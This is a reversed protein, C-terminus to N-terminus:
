IDKIITFINEDGIYNNLLIKLYNKLNRIITDLIFLEPIKNDPYNDDDLNDLLQMNTYLNRIKDISKSLNDFNGHSIDSRIDYIHSLEKKLNNIDIENNNLYLVLLTKNIFM